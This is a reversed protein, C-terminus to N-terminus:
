LELPSGPVDHAPGPRNSVSPKEPDEGPVAPEDRTPGVSRGGGTHTGGQVRGRRRETRPRETGPRRQAFGVVVLWAALAAVIVACMVWLMIGSM